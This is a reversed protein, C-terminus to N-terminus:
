GVALFQAGKVAWQFLVIFRAVLLIPPPSHLDVRPPDQATGPCEPLPGRPNTGGQPQERRRTLADCVCALLANDAATTM